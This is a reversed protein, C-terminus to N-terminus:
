AQLKLLQLLEDIRQLMENTRDLDPRRGQDFFPHKRLFVSIEPHTDVSDAIAVIWRHQRDLYISQEQMMELIAILVEKSDSM